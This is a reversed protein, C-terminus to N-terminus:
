FDKFDGLPLAAEKEDDSLPTTGRPPRVGRDRRVTATVPLVARAHHARAALTGVAVAPVDPAEGVLRLLEDVTAKQGAAQSNLEQAASASEEATAANSQTIRDMATVALNVQSIGQAQEKSAVAIQGVLEDVSRAKATIEKLSQAVKGSVEVGQSTKSIADEIRTATERAAQASRQALSRVEEAVVAFGAGAEGARAAEVAANLALINTQFAIEDINKVIKAVEDSSRKIAAISQRMQEMDHAGADAAARTQGSIEKAQQAADANRKVMSTMEELSASTEELSAAQNCAGEALTQSAGAVANAHASTQDSAEALRGALEIMARRLHASGLAVMLLVAAAYVAGSFGLTLVSNQVEAFARAASQAREGALDACHTTVAQTAAELQKALAPVESEFVAIAGQLDTDLLGRVRGLVAVQSALSGELTRLRQRGEADTIVQRLEGIIEMQQRHLADAEVGRASRREDAGYILEYSRFTHLKLSQELAGLSSLGALGTEALEELAALGTRSVRWQIVAQVGLFVLLGAVLLQIVQFTRRV